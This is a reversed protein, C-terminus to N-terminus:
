PMSRTSGPLIHRPKSVQYKGSFRSEAAGVLDPTAIVVALGILVVRMM